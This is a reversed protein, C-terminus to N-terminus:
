RKKRSWSMIRGAIDEASDMGSIEAVHNTSGADRDATEIRVGQGTRKCYDRLEACLPVLAAGGGIIVLIAVFIGGDMEGPRPPSREPTVTSRQLYVGRLRNYLARMGAPGGDPTAIRLTMPDLDCSSPDAHEM